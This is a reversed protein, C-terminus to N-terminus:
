ISEDKTSPPEGHITARGDRKKRRQGAEEAWSRDLKQGAEEAKKRKDDDEQVEMKAM